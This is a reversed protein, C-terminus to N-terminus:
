KRYDRTLDVEYDVLDNSQDRGIPSAERLIAERDKELSTMDEQYAILSDFPGEPQISKWAKGILKGFEM